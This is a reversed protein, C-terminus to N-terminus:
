CIQRKMHCDKYKRGSKCYCQDNPKMRKGALKNNLIRYFNSNFLKTTQDLIHQMNSPIEKSFSQAVRGLRFLLHLNQTSISDRVLPIFCAPYAILLNRIAYMIPEVIGNYDCVFNLDPRFQHLRLPTESFYSDIRCLCYDYSGVKKILDLLLLISDNVTFPFRLMQSLILWPSFNSRLINEGEDLPIDIDVPESDGLQVIAQLKGENKIQTIPHREVLEYLFAPIIQSNSELLQLIVLSAFSDEMPLRSVYTLFYDCLKKIPTKLSIQSRINEVLINKYLFLIVYQLHPFILTISDHFVKTQLLGNEELEDIESQNLYKNEEQKPIFIRGISYLFQYSDENQSGHLEFFAKALNLYYGKYKQSLASYVQEAYTMLQTADPISELQVIGKNSSTKYYSFLTRLYYPDSFEKYYQYGPVIEFKNKMTELFVELEPRTIRSVDLIKFNSFIPSERRGKEKIVQDKVSSDIAIVVRSETNEILSHLEICQQIINPSASFDDLLFLIRTNDYRSVKKIWTKLKNADLSLFLSESIIHAMMDFISICEQIRIYLPIYDRKCASFVQYLTNTKGSFPIGHILFHQNRKTTLIESVVSRSIQFNECIPKQLDTIEGILYSFTKLSIQNFSSSIVPISSFFLTEIADDYSQSAALKMSNEIWSGIGLKEIEKAEIEKGTISSLLKTDEGNSIITIPTIPTTLRSYSLGQKIANEDITEGPAKLEFLFTPIDNVTILIDAFGKKSKEINAIEYSNHGITISFTEQHKLEIKALSPLLLRIVEDVRAEFTAENM